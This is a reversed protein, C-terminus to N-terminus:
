RIAIARASSASGRDQDQVVRRGRDVGGGLALDLGRQALDHPPPRREHDRVPERRDRQGVVDDDELGPAHDRATIVLREQRLRRQVGLDRGLPERVLHKRFRSGTSRTAPSHARAAIVEDAAPARGGPAPALQASQDHQEARVASAHRQHEDREHERGGRCQSGRWQGRQRDVLPDHRAIQGRQRPDDDREDHAGEHVPARGVRLGVQDAPDALARQLVEPDLEERVQLAHRDAEVRRLRAPTSIERIDLSTSASSVSTESPMTVSNPDDSVSIPM